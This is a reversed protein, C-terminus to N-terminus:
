KSVPRVRLRGCGRRWKLLLVGLSWIDSRADAPEGRLLEPAMCFLTGALLEDATVSAHSQSFDKVSQTSLRRALGFDLIKAHADPTVVVNADKLDRHSVGKRHAHALADAIQIGYRLLSDISIGDPPILESLRHGEVYEMVIFAQGDCTGVEHITCIHPHNLQSALQAERRLQTQAEVDDGMGIKLAVDRGLEVDRAAYVAGMGGAGVLRGVQYHGIIRGTMSPRAGGMGSIPPQEIFTGAQGHASLLRELEAMLDTDGGCVEVVFASRDEPARELAKHFLEKVRAWQDGNM